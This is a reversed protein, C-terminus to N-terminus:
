KPNETLYAKIFVDLMELISDRLQSMIQRDISGIGGVSWTVAYSTQAPNRLLAVKQILMVDITYPYIDSETKAINVNINIYLYPEGPTKLCEEKTLVKIGASRLKLEIEGQLANRNLGEQEVESPLNEVLAGVGLLGRLTAQNTRGHFAFSFPGWSLSLAVLVWGIMWTKIKM